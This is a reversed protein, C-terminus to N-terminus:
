YLVLYSCFAVLIPSVRPGVGLLGSSRFYFVGSVRFCWLKKKIMSCDHESKGPFDYISFHCAGSAKLYLQPILLVASKLVKIIVVTVIM